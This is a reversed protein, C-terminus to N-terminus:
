RHWLTLHMLAHNYLSYSNHAFAPSTTTFDVHNVPRITLKTSKVSDNYADSLRVLVSVVNADRELQFATGPFRWRSGDRPSNLQSFPTLDSQFVEDVADDTLTLAVTAM